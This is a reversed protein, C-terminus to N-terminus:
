TRTRTVVPWHSHRMTTPLGGEAYRGLLQLANGRNNLRGPHKVPELALASNHSRLADEYRGMTQQAVGLSNLVTPNSPDIEAAARFCEAARDPENARM